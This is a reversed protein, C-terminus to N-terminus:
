VKTFPTRDSDGKLIMELDPKKMVIAAFNWSNHM